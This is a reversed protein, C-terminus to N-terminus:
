NKRKPTVAKVATAGLKKGCFRCRPDGGEFGTYMKDNNTGVCKCYGNFKYPTEIRKIRNMLEQEWGVEGNSLNKKILTDISVEYVESLKLLKEIPPEALGSEYAFVGSKGKLGIIDAINELSLGKQIRLYKLNTKFYNM